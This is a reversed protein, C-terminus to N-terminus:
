GSSAASNTRMKRQLISQIKIQRQTEFIDIAADLELEGDEVKQCLEKRM